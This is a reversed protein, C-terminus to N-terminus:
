GLLTVTCSSDTNIDSTELLCFGGVGSSYDEFCGGSAKPLYDYLEGIPLAPLYDMTLAVTMTRASFM